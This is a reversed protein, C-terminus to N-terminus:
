SIHSDIVASKVMKDELVRIAIIVSDSDLSTNLVMGNSESSWLSPSVWLRGPCDFLRISFFEIQGGDTRAKIESSFTPVGESAGGGKRGEGEDWSGINDEIRIM